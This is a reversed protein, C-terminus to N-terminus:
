LQMKWWFIKGLNHLSCDRETSSDKLLSYGDFNSNKMLPFISIKIKLCVWGITKTRLWNHFVDDSEASTFIRVLCPGTESACLPFVPDLQVRDQHVKDVNISIEMFVTRIEKRNTALYRWFNLSFPFFYLSIMVFHCQVKLEEPSYWSRTIM